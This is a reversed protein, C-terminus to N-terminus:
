RKTRTSGDPAIYTAGSPLANYEADSSIRAPGATTSPAPAAPAAQGAARGTFAEIQAPNYGGALAGRTVRELGRKELMDRRVLNKRVEDANMRPNIASKNWAEIEPATLASGFLKNRVQSQHLEYDQWWQSQGTDDGMVRGVTNGLEGTITKGAYEPKFTTRFRDTADALEAAETLQKQLPSPIARDVKPRPPASGIVERTRADIKISKTPDNPDAIEVISPAPPQRLSAALRMMDMRARNQEARSLAQDESRQRAIEIQAQVREAAATNPAEALMENNAGFRRAGPALTYPEAPKPLMGKLQNAMGLAAPTGITLLGKLAVAPDGQAQSLVGRIQQEDQANRQEQQRKALMGQLGMMGQAQQLQGMQNRQERDQAGFYGQMVSPLGRYDNM